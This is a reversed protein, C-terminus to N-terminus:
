NVEVGDIQKVTTEIIEHEHQQREKCLEKIAHHYLKEYYDM